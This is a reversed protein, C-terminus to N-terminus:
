RLYRDLLANRGESWSYDLMYEGMYQDRVRGSGDLMDYLDCEFMETDVRRNGRAVVLMDDAGHAKLENQLTKVLKSCLNQTLEDNPRDEWLANIMQDTTVIGGRRDILFALLEKAKASKFMIPKGDVFVDFYGFTRAFIRKKRRGSLLRATEVAYQLDETSYPKVIYAAVHLQIAEMAYKEDEAIYILMIDPHRRRLEQGLSAGVTEEIHVDLIVLEVQHFDAYKLAEFANQFVGRIELGHMNQTKRILTQIALAEDSVLITNM